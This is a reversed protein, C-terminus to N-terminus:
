APTEPPQAEAARAAAQIAGYDADTMVAPLGDWKAAIVKKAIVFTALAKDRTFACASTRVLHSRGFAGVESRWLYFAPFEASGKDLRIEYRRRNQTLMCDMADAIALGRGFVNAPAHPDFVTFATAALAANEAGLRDNEDRHVKAIFARDAEHRAIEAPDHDRKFQEDRECAAEREDLARDRSWSALLFVIIVLLLVNTLSM